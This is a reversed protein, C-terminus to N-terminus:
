SGPRHGDELVRVGIVRGPEYLEDELGHLEDDQLLPTSGQYACPRHSRRVCGVSSSRARGAPDPRGRRHWEQTAVFRAPPYIIKVLGPAAAAAPAVGARGPGPTLAATNAARDRPMPPPPKMLRGCIEGQVSRGPSAKTPQSM